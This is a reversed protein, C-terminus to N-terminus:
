IRAILEDDRRVRYGRQRLLEVLDSESMSVLELSPPSMLHEVEVVLDDLDDPLHDLAITAASPPWDGSLCEGTLTVDYPDEDDPVVDYDDDDLGPPRNVGRPQFRRADGYTRLAWIAEHDLAYDNAVDEPLLVLNNDLVGYVLRSSKSGSPVIM